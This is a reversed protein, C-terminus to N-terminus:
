CTICDACNCDCNGCCGTLAGIDISGDLSLNGLSAGLDGFSFAVAGIIAINGVAVAAIMKKNQWWKGGKKKPDMEKEMEKKKEETTEYAVMMTYASPVSEECSINVVKSELDKSGELWARATLLDLRQKVFVKKVPIVDSKRCDVKTVWKEGTHLTGILEIQKPFTGEYSGSITLPAGMFLDPIPCPFVDMSKVGPAKMGINTIVPESAVNLLQNVQGFIKEKYVVVDSFGRGIEALMKLFFWNCYSGIGFTLLRTNKVKARASKAIDKEDEVKMMSQHMEPNQDRVPSVSNAKKVKPM